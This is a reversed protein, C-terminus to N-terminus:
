PTGGELEAHRLRLRGPPVGPLVLGTASEMDFRIGYNTELDAWSQGANTEGFRAPLTAPDGIATVVYPPSLPRFNVNIAQGAIGIASTPGLRNGNIAVAEAGALWLGNVLVQLDEDLVTGGEVGEGADDITIRLGPGTAPGRGALLRAREVQELLTEGRLGISEATGQIDTIERRLEEIQQGAADLDSRTEDIQEILETREAQELPAADRSQVVALGVMLGLVALVTTAVLLGRRPPLPTRRTATVRAYESDVAEDTIQALLDRRPTSELADPPTM